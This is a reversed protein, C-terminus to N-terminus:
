RQSHLKLSHVGGEMVMSAYRVLSHQQDRCYPADVEEELVSSVSAPSIFEQNGSYIWFMVLSKLLM